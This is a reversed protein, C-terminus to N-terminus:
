PAHAQARAQHVVTRGHRKEIRDKAMATLGFVGILFKSFEFRAFLFGKKSEQSRELALYLRGQPRRRATITQAFTWMSNMQEQRKRALRYIRFSMSRGIMRQAGCTALRSDPKAVKKSISAQRITRGKRRRSLLKFVADARRVIAPIKPASAAAARPWPGELM